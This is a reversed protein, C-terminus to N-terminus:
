YNKILQDQGDLTFYFEQAEPSDIETVLIMFQKVGQDIFEGLDVEFVTDRAKDFELNQKRLVHQTAVDYVLVKFITKHELILNLTVSRQPPAKPKPETYEVVRAVLLFPVQTQKQVGMIRYIYPGEKQLSDSASYNLVHAGYSNRSVSQEHIFDSKIGNPNARYVRFSQFNDIQEEQLSWTLNVLRGKRLAQSKITDLTQYSHPLGNPKKSLQIGFDCFDGLFGDINALYQTKTKLSDLQVFVDDQRIQPICHLVRYTKTECPNGEIIILQLGQRDRCNQGSVNIFYTGAVSVTFNFWQDNHYVLCKNTLAKNVCRWEVDSKATSSFIPDSGIELTLRNQINNNRVQAISSNHFGILVLLVILRAM